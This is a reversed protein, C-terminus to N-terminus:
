YVDKGGPTIERMWGHAAGGQLDGVYPVLVLRLVSVLRALAVYDFIIIAAMCGCILVVGCGVM